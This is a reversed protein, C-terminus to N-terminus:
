PGAPGPTATRLVPGLLVWGLGFLVMLALNPAADVPESGRLLMVVVNAVPLVGLGIAVLGMRRPLAKARLAATGFAVLGGALLLWGLLMLLGWTFGEYIWAEGLDGLAWLGSGIMAAVLGRRGPQSPAAANRHRVGLLGVLLLLPVLFFLYDEVGTARYGVHMQTRGRGLYDWLYKLALLVGGLVGAVGAWSILGTRAM